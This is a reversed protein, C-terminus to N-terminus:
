HTSANSVSSTPSRGDNHCQKKGQPLFFIRFARQKKYTIPAQQEANIRCAAPRVRTLEVHNKKQAGLM